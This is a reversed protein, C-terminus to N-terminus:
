ASPQQVAAGGSASLAQVLGETTFTAAEVSIRLGLERATGSTVPGISALKSRRLDAQPVMRALNRVTSSSTVAVWDPARGAAWARAALERSPEPLVTRYVPVVDVEAGLDALSCPLLDRAEQARPLLIRSGSLEIAAFEESLSEAVFEPPVLDVRLHLGRLREATAPGIACLRRPLDRLDRGSADLREVFRDVGNVSTFVIWDYEPLRALARDAPRWSAPPEFAITPIPVAEAGVRRLARCLGASQSAARTVVVSQGRLPLNGFWDIEQRYRVIEGILVLAPPKLGLRSIREELDALTGVAASQDGRTAWRIAAAPTAPDLGADLLRKAIEGYTTLGMFVVITQRRALSKWDVRAVDHGTVMTVAQTQDRHTLPMGAYAAAGQASTVGPVTEFPVGARALAQAEEGGRGFIYPDGGKLRVVAKGSRAAEILLANIEAQSCAHSARKKGVYRREAEPSVLALVGPSTLNDYFVLDAERLLELGRLTLLDPDGPGAGVLYVIGARAGTSHASDPM